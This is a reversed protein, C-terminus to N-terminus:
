STMRAVAQEWTPLATIGRGEVASAAVASAFAAAALPDGCQHLHILLAAAFVDGAGTPDREEAPYAAIQHPAGAIYLTSGRSGRTLAVLHCHQAYAAVLAEDGGVDEISLVLLDVHALAAPDPHWSVRRIPAPLPLDWRRMWGQPTVAVLADSFAAALDLGFEGTLPGLHVLPAARWAPPLDAIQLTAGQAHLLQLRGHSTYRNEFTSPQPTPVLAVAVGKPLSPPSAPDGSTFIAAPVGLWAATAAAYLATGGLVSSGDPLLDYTLDGIVLYTPTTM